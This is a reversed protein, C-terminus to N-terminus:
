SLLVGPRCQIGIFADEGLPPALLDASGSSPLHNPPIPDDSGDLSRNASRRVRHAVCQEGLHAHKIQGKLRNNLAMWLGEGGLDYFSGALSQGGGTGFRGSRGM